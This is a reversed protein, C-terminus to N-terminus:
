ALYELQLDKKTTLWHYHRKKQIVFCCDICADFKDQHKLFSLRRVVFYGCDCRCLWKGGSGFWAVILLRSRRKGINIKAQEKIQISLKPIDPILPKIKFFSVNQLDKHSPEYNTGGSMAMATNKNVATGGYEFVSNKSM